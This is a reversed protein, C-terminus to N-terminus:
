CAPYWAPGQRPLRWAERMAQLAKDVPSVVPTGSAEPPVPHGLQDLRSQRWMDDIIDKIGTSRRPNFGSQMPMSQKRPSLKASVVRPFVFTTHQLWPKDAPADETKESEDKPEEKKPEESGACGVLAACSALALAASGAVFVRRTIKEM